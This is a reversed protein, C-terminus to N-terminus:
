CEVIGDVTCLSVKWAKPFSEVLQTVNWEDWAAEEDQLLEEITEYGCERMEELSSYGYAKYSNKFEYIRDQIEEKTVKPNGVMLFGYEERHDTCEVLKLIM